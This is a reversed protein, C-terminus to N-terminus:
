IHGVSWNFVALQSLFSEKILCSAGPARAGGAGRSTCSADSVVVLLMHSMASRRRRRLLVAMPPRAMITRRNRTAARASIIAGYLGVWVVGLLMETGVQSCGMPVSRRPRSTNLRTMWPLRTDMYTPTTDIRSAM